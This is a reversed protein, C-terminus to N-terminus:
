TRRCRRATPPPRSRGPKSAPGNAGAPFRCRPGANPIVPRCRSPSGGEEGSSPPASPVSSAPPGSAGSASVAYRNATSGSAAPSWGPHDADLGACACGPDGIAAAQAMPDASGLPDPPDFPTVPDVPTVPDAPTMPDAGPRGPSRCPLRRSKGPCAGALAGPWGRGAAEHRARRRARWWGGEGPRPRRTMPVNVQASLCDAIRAALRIAARGGRRDPCGRPRGKPAPGRRAAPLCM